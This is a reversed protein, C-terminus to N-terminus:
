KNLIRSEIMYKEIAVIAACYSDISIVESSFDYCHGFTQTLLNVLQAELVVSNPQSKWIEQVM